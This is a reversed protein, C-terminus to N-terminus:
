TPILSLYSHTSSSGLNSVYFNSSNATYITLSAIQKPTDSKHRTLEHVLKIHTMRIKVCKTLHIMGKLKLM